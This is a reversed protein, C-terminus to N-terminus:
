EFIVRWVDFTNMSTVPVSRVFTSIAMLMITAINESYQLSGNVISGISMSDSCLPKVRRAGCRSGRFVSASTDYMLEQQPNVKDGSSIHARRWRIPYTAEGDADEDSRM